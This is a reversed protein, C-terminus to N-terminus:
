TKAADLPSPIDSAGKLRVVSKNQGDKDQATEDHVASENSGDFCRLVQSRGLM